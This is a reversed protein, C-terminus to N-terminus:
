GKKIVRLVDVAKAGTEDALAEEVTARPMKLRSVDKAYEESDEWDRLQILATSAPASTEIKKVIKAAENSLNNGITYRIEQNDTDGKAFLDDFAPKNKPDGYLAQLRAVDPHLEVQEHIEQEKPAPKVKKKPTAAKPTTAANVEETINKNPPIGARPSEDVMEEYIGMGGLLEPRNLKILFSAARYKLMMRPLKPWWSDKKSYWGAAKADGITIVEEIITGYEIDEAFAKFGWADGDAKTGIEEFEIGRKFRKSQNAMTVIAKSELGLKGHVIYTWQFFAAVTLGLSQAMNLALMCNAENGQYERPIMGSSMAILRAARFSQDFQVTDLFMSVNVQECVAPTLEKISKAPTLDKNEM